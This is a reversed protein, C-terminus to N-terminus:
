EGDFDGNKLEESETEESGVDMLDGEVKETYMIGDLHDMEHCLARALLGTGEITQPKMEKDFGEVIVHEPRKVIGVKNPVSLCGEQGVQEGDSEKLVPNVFVIPGEGVDIVIIRRLVGVQVAALGVGQDAYMTELMDDALTKLRDNMEKVPHSKKSLIPDGDYRLDRLAM